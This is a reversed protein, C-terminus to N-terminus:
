PKPMPPAPDVAPGQPPQGPQLPHVPPESPKRPTPPADDDAPKAPAPDPSVHITFRAGPKDYRNFCERVEEATFSKYAAPAALVDDLSTARYTLTSLVRTWFAPERVQEDLANAIQKKVTDMEEASAPTKSFDDYLAAVAAILAELKEPATTTSLIVAGHGPFETAPASAVSPSYALQSKERIGQIARTTLVRSAINLLRVDRLKDQDTGFFGSLLLAKDSKTKVRASANLPGKPVEVTRLDALTQKSIRPRAPLSGIYRRALELARQPDIDGVISAEIPSTAVLKRLWAQGEAATLREIEATELSKVRIESKPFLTESALDNLVGEPVLKRMTAFQKQQEQWQQFAAPELVPDTIMLYALQLGDELEAPSGHVALTLTDLGPRGAASVKKGTMLDRINTSSLKSTAPRAWAIAAVQTIGHNEATEMIQGGAFNVTVTVDDKRYDMKRIHLRAGNELWYSGVASAEHTTTEAVKGPEPAEDLLKTPREAAAEAEPKAEFAKAGLSIVADETPVEATSPLEVTFTAPKSTDFLVAIRKSVEATTLTPVLERALDLSQQASLIPEGSRVSENYSRLLQQAPLTPEVELEREAGSILEKRADALEQDTFGHLNARRLEGAVEALMDKWKAPEGSANVSCFQAASFLDSASAGAEHFSAKGQMLREQLRRNFVWEAAGDVLRERLLERTTTPPLAPRVWAISISADTIEPDSAVIARPADYPRVAPDQPGPRPKKPGAGFHKKIAEVVPAPDSDAVAIVTMNSPVYWKGYYARFDDPQVGKISEETGIPIRVGLLSGPILRELIYDQVRQRGSLHSRREELIIQRESDIEKPPLSLGTAVDSLFLLAKDLTQPKNDPLALQFTTQDFSTFANQHQGFTLGLSQFFDIVSGPPFHESGNFAMHELYHALGRQRDTENLSGTSVHLWVADRNPPNNHQRVLYHLGNPLEGSVVRSDSPLPQALVGATFFLAALIATLARLAHAAGRCPATSTLLHM